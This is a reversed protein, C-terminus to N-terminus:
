SFVCRLYFPDNEASMTTQNLFNTVSDREWKLRGGDHHRTAAAQLFPHGVVVVTLGETRRKSYSRVAMNYGINASVCVAESVWHFGM